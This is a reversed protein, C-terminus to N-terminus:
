TINIKSKLSKIENRLNSIETKLENIEAEKNGANHCNEKLKEVEDSISRLQTTILNIDSAIIVQGDEYPGAFLSTLEQRLTTETEKWSEEDLKLAKVIGLDKVINIIKDIVGNGGLYREGLVWSGLRAIDIISDITADATPQRTAYVVRWGISIPLLPNLVKALKDKFRENHFWQVATARDESKPWVVIRLAIRLNHSCDGARVGLIQYRGNLANEPSLVIPKPGWQVDWGVDKELNWAKFQKSLAKKLRELYSEISNNM